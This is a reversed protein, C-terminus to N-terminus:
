RFRIRYALSAKFLYGDNIRDKYYYDKTKGDLGLRMRRFISHGAELNLVIKPALYMDTYVSLQNEDIRLYNTGPTLITHYSNTIAKFSVGWYLRRSSKHEFVLSGPLVGFVNNRSDLQWDIGLLPMFFPGSFEKNYYLGMKYVLTQNKRYSALVAMGMQFNNEFRNKNNGNWRPIATFSLTWKASVPRIYTLPLILSNVTIGMETTDSLTVDWKEAYPSFVLISSDRKFQYPLNLSINLYTFDSATNHQRFLGKEPSFQYRVNLIDLYPQCAAQVYIFCVLILCVPKPFM